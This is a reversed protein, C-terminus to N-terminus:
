YLYPCKTNIKMPFKMLFSVLNWSTGWCHSRTMGLSLAFNTPLKYLLLSELRLHKALQEILIWLAVGVRKEIPIAKRFQTERKEMNNRVLEVIMSFTRGEMRFDAKWYKQFDENLINDIMNQFWLEERQLAWISRRSNGILVAMLNANSITNKFFNNRKLNRVSLLNQLHRIRSNALKKRLSWKLVLLFL